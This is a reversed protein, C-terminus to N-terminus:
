EKKARLKRYLRDVTEASTGIYSSYDLACRLEKPTLHKMAVRDELLVSELTSKGASAKLSARRLLEHAEQRDMGKSVLALMVPEAMILGRTSELNALMAEPRVKMGRVVEKMNRLIYDTLICAHPIIMRESSSNTLDREHWLPVNELAPVVFGRVVRAIGCANECVVPNKKHAMTSSGVQHEEDFPEQVEGVESRQLLRVETALKEVSASINALVFVFEALRDRQIVQNTADPVGLGLRRMVDEQIDLARPGLGAGTGVAGSMKGVCVRERAQDLRDIHRQFESALVAMKLGFTIPLAWQGHTRGLMVTDRHKVAKEMLADRLGACDSRLIAMAEKLQLATATDTIDNSTAGLHVFRGSSGVQEAFAKVVAMIDHRTAKEIQRVRALKVKGSRAAKDICAADKQPIRGAGAQALALAGEVTLIFSLKAQECFLRKMEAHGYRFEIPCVSM